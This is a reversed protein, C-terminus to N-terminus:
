RVAVVGGKQRHRSTSTAGWSILSSIDYKSGTLIDNEKRIYM